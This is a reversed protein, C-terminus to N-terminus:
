QFDAKQHILSVLIWLPLISARPKAMEAHNGNKGSDPHGENLMRHTASRELSLRHLM